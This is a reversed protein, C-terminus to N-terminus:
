YLGVMWMLLQTETYEPHQARGIVSYVFMGLGSLFLLAAFLDQNDGHYM